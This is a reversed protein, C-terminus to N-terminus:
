PKPEQKTRCKFSPHASSGCTSCQHLRACLNWTCGKGQTNWNNCVVAEKKPAKPDPPALGHSSSASNHASSSSGSRIHAIFLQPDTHVWSLPDTSAQHARFHAIFYARVHYWSFKDILVWHVLQKIYLFIAPAIGTKDVDYLACISGYVSLALLATNLDPFDKDFTNPAEESQIWKGTRGDFSITGPIATARGRPRNEVPILRILDKVDLKGAVLSTLTSQDVWPLHAQLFTQPDTGNITGTSTSSSSPAQTRDSLAATLAQIQQTIDSLTEEVKADMRTMSERLQEISDQTDSAELDLTKM